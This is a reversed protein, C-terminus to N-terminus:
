GDEGRGFFDYVKSKGDRAKSGDGGTPRKSYQGLRLKSRAEPTLGLDRRLRALMPALSKITDVDGEAIAADNLAKAECYDKLAGTDVEHFLGAKAMPPVIRKWEAKADASMNKPCRPASSEIGALPQGTSTDGFGVVNEPGRRQRGRNAM